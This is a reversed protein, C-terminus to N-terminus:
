GRRAMELGFATACIEERRAAIKTGAKNRLRVYGISGDRSVALLIASRKKGVIRRDKVRVVQGILNALASTQM